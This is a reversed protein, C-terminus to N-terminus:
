KGPPPKLGLDKQVAYVHRHHRLDRTKGPTLTFVAVSGKEGREIQWTLQDRGSGSWAWLVVYEKAFDVQKAIAEAAAKDPVAKALEERSTVKTPIGKKAQIDDLKVDKLELERVRKDKEDKKDDEAAWGTLGGLLAALLLTRMTGGGNAVTGGGTM